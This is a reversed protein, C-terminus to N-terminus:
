PHTFIQVKDLVIPLDLSPDGVLPSEVVQGEATHHQHPYSDLHPFEEKNDWRLLPVDQFLQYAYDLHGHNYYIRAQFNYQAILDARVKFLFQQESFVKTEVVSTKLCLPHVQLISMVRSLRFDLSKM